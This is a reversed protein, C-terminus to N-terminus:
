QQTEQRGGCYVYVCMFVCMCVYVCVPTCVPAKISQFIHMDAQSSSRKKADEVITFLILNNYIERRDNKFIATPDSVLQVPFRELEEQTPLCDIM